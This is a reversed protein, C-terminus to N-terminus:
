AKITHILGRWLVQETGEIAPDYFLKFDIPEERHFTVSKVNPIPCGKDFL